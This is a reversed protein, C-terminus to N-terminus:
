NIFLYYNCMEVGKVDLRRSATKRTDLLSIYCVKLGLSLIFPQRDNRYCQISGEFM